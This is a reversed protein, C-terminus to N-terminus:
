ARMKKARERMKCVSLPALTAPLHTKRDRERMKWARHRTPTELLHMKKDREGVKWGRAIATAIAGRM